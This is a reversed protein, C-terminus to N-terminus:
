VGSRAAERAARIYPALTPTDITCGPSLIFRTNGGLTRAARVQQRLTPISLLNFKAHDLGGMLTKDTLKRMEPLSPGGSQDAWSLVQVPYDLLRDLYIKEGHAHLIHCEGKGAIANLFELNYPRMFREYQERSVTEATAAVAYFIGAAGLELCTRAYRILNQNVVRIAAELADPHDIMLPGMLDKLLFRRITFWADFVTEVVLAQGKLEGLIQELAKLQRGMPTTPLDLPVLKALDAPAAICDLGQPMPYEYDNMVKLLDLDYAKFFETHVRATLEPSGYPTGMHYWLTFPPYDVPQGALTARVREIKNV